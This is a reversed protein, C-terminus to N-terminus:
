WGYTTLVTLFRIRRSNSGDPFAETPFTLCHFAIDTLHIVAEEPKCRNRGTDNEPTIGDSSLRYQFVPKGLSDPSVFGSITFSNGTVTFQM